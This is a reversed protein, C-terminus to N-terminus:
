KAFKRYLWIVLCAGAVSFLINGFLGNPGIQLLGGIMGGVISGALGLACNFWMNSNDIKMLSAAIFGSVVGIVLSIIISIMSEGSIDLPYIM